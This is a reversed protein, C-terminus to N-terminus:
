DRQIGNETLSLFDFVIILYILPNKITENTKIKLNEAFMSELVCVNGILLKLLFRM